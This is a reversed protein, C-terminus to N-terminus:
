PTALAPDLVSFPSLGDTALVLQRDGLSLSIRQAGILPEPGLRLARAGDIRARVARDLWVGPPTSAPALGVFRFDDGPTAQGLNSSDAGALEFRVAVGTARSEARGAELLASLRQGERELRSEGGDRLALGALGSVMAILMLVLLLEVLTFGAAGHLHRGPSNGPASTPTKATV